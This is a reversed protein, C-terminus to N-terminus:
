SRVGRGRWNGGVDPCWQPLGWSRGPRWQKGRSGDPLSVHFAEGLFGKGFHCFISSKLPSGWPALGVEGVPLAEGVEDKNLAPRPSPTDLSTSAQASTHGCLSGSSSYLRCPTLSRGGAESAQAWAPPAPYLATAGGCAQLMRWGLIRHEASWRGPAARRLLGRGRASFLPIRPSPVVSPQEPNRCGSDM